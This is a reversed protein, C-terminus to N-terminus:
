AFYTCSFPRIVLLLSVYLYCLLCRLLLLWTWVFNVFFFSCPSRVSMSVETGRGAIVISTGNGTQGLIQSNGLGHHVPTEAGGAPRSASRDPSRRNKRSPSPSDETQRFMRTSSRMTSLGAATHSREPSLGHSNALGDKPRRPAKPATSTGFQDASAPREKTKLM